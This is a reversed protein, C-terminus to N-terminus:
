NLKKSYTLLHTPVQGTVTGAGLVVTIGTAAQSLAIVFTEGAAWTGGVIVLAKGGTGAITDSGGLMPRATTVLNTAM